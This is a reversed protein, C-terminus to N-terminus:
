YRLRFFQKGPGAPITISNGTTPVLSWNNELMTASSELTYVSGHPSLSPWTLTIEGPQLSAITLELPEMGSNSTGPPGVPLSTGQPGGLAIMEDDSLKGARIQISDVWMERREDQDGDGFLIATPQLARRVADLGQNATWDHQKIGDVFKTVVPPTAAEDYAAIVRHWAGATFQGTGLYGDTGQGFNNGQWFLDGDDTNTLSSVQLLSAAGPGSTGVFIDMMLTFQNVRTGGGNPKIGHDMIYGIERKLDGPVKMIRADRGNILDV